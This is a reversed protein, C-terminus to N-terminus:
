SIRCMTSIFIRFYLYLKSNSQESNFYVNDNNKCMYNNEDSVILFKVM